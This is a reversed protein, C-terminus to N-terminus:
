FYQWAFCFNYNSVITLKSNKLELNFVKTEIDFDHYMIKEFALNKKILADVGGGDTSGSSRGQFLLTYDEFDLLYNAEEISLKLENLRLRNKNQDDKWCFIFCCITSM